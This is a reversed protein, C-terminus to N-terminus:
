LDTSAVPLRVPEVVALVDVNGGPMRDILDTVRFTAGEIALVDGIVVPKPMHAVGVNGREEDYLHVRAGLDRLHTVRRLM